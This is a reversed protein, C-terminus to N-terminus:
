AAPVLEIKTFVTSGDAAMATKAEHVRAGPKLDASSCTSENNDDSGTGSTTNDDGADHNAGDDSGSGSTTSGSGSNEGSTTSGSGSSDESGGDDSGDRSATATTPAAAPADDCEIKTMDNVTGSVTGAGDGPLQITLVNNDFSVVTGSIEDGDEVGDGNTDPNDPNTHDLVENGDNVGDDDTDADRPDTGQRFESLNNLGDKDPDKRAVNVRTSRHHSNEWKDPIRDHNRDGRKALAGAPMALLAMAIAATMLGKILRM